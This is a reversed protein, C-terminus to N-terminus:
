ANFLHLSFSIFVMGDGKSCSHKMGDFLSIAAQAIMKKRVLSIGDFGFADVAFDALQNSIARFTTENLPNKKRLLLLDSKNHQIFYNELM